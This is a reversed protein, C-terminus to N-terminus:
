GDEVTLKWGRWAFARGLRELVMARPREPSDPISGSYVVIENWPKSMAEANIRLNGAEDKYDLGTRGLLRVSFGDSSTAWGRWSTTFQETM